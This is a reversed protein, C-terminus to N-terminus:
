FHIIPSWASKVDESQGELDEDSYDIPSSEEPTLWGVVYSLHMARRWRDPTLNAGGGHVLKGTYVLADGPGM